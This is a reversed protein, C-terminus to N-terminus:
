GPEVLSPRHAHREEVWAVRGSPGVTPSAIWASGEALVTPATGDLPFRVLSSRRATAGSIVVVGDAGVAVQQCEEVPVPYGRSSGDPAVITLTNGFSAIAVSGDPAVGISAGNVPVTGYVSSLTGAAPDFRRLALGAPVIQALVCRELNCALMGDGPVAAVARPPGGGLEFVTADEDGTPAAAFLVRGSAVILRRDFGPNGVAVGTLDLPVSAGSAVDLIGGGDAGIWALRTEDVWAAFHVDSTPAETGPWGDVLHLTSDAYALDIAMREGARDRAIWTPTADPPFTLLDHSRSPDALEVERAVLAGGDRLVLWVTDRPGCGITMTERPLWLADGTYLTKALGGDVPWALVSPVGQDVAAVVYAGSSAWCLDIVGAGKPVEAVRRRAGGAIPAAWLAAGDNWAITVGDPSVRAISGDYGFPRDVGAEHVLMAAPWGQGSLMLGGGPLLDFSYGTALELIPERDGTSLSLSQVGNDGGILLHDGDATFGLGGIPTGEDIREGIPRLTWAVPRPHVAWWAALLAAGLGVGAAVGVGLTPGWPRAAATVRQMPAPTPTARSTDFTQSAAESPPDLTTRDVIVPVRDLAEGPLESEVARLASAFEAASPYRDERKWATARKLVATLPPPLESWDIAGEVYLDLPEKGTILAYLTGGAAYVDARGDVTRAASRQEPAMYALTGMAAGTRTLEASDVRAIGFDAVLPAGRADLLLNHPKVDRHVVGNDHAHQLAGLVDVILRCALKPALPGHEAVHDAVSGGPALDMVLFVRAGDTGVDYVSLLNPHRLRAMTRAENEFRLRAASTPAFTEDLVKIARWVRLRADWAQYVTAMGGRGLTRVLAYRGEELSSPSALSM